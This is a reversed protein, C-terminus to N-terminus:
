ADKDYYIFDANVICRRVNQPTGAHAEEVSLHNVEIIGSAYLGSTTPITRFAEAVKDGLQYAYYTDDQDDKKYTREWCHFSVRPLYAKNKNTTTTYQGLAVEWTPATIVRVTVMPLQKVLTNISESWRGSITYDSGLTDELHSKLANKIGLLIDAM